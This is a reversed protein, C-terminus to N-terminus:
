LQRIAQYKGGQTSEYFSSTCYLLLLFLKFVDKSSSYEEKKRKGKKMKEENHINLQFGQSHDQGECHNVILPNGNRLNEFM